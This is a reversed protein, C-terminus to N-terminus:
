RRVVPGYAQHALLEPSRGLNTVDYGRFAFSATGIRAKLDLGGAARGAHPADHGPTPHAGPGDATAEGPSAAPGAGDGSHGRRTPTKWASSAGGDRGPGPTMRRKAQNFFMMAPDTM